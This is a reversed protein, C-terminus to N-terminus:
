PGRGRGPLFNWIVSSDRHLEDAKSERSELMWAEVNHEVNEDRKRHTERLMRRKRQGPDKDERIRGKWGWLVDDRCGDDHERM